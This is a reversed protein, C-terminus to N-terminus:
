KASRVYTLNSLDNNGIDGDIHHISYGKKPKLKPKFEEELSTLWDKRYQQVKVYSLDVEPVGLVESLYSEVYHPFAKGLRTPFKSMIIEKAQIGLLGCSVRNIAHCIYIEKTNVESWYKGDWLHKKAERFVDSLNNIKNKM